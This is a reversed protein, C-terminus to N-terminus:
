NVQKGAEEKIGFVSFHFINSKIQKQGDTWGDTQGLKFSINAESFIEFIHVIVQLM